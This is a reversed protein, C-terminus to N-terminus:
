AYLVPLPAFVRKVSAGLPAFTWAGRNESGDLVVGSDDYVQIIRGQAPKALGHLLIGHGGLSSECGIESRQEFEVLIVDAGHLRGVDLPEPFNQSVIKKAGKRVSRQDIARM